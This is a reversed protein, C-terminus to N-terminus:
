ARAQNALRLEHVAGMKEFIQMARAFHERCAEPDERLSSGLKVRILGEEYLLNFKQAAELGKQWTKLAMQPKGMLEEYWGKYYHAYPQGIPFVNRFGRLLKLAKEALLKLAEADTTRTPRTAHLEKEWLAFYVEAVAAFGIDMSYVTPSRNAALKLVKDAYALAEQEQGVRLHALALQGNTDISSALNPLEELIQLAEELMPIATTEKGTRIHITAVGFLGWGIQLPNRRERAGELLTSLIEMAYPIDGSILASEGLVEMSDGWQRYDGLQECLVRAERGRVRIEDWKGVTIKYVSTVVDVNILNSPQNVDEAVALARSVYIEALSHLQAFGALVALGAYASALEPSPGAREATNVLRLICYMIPLTEQSYFYSRGMLEYLRSVEIIVDREQGKLSGIFRGPFYRHFV